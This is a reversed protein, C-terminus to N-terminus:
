CGNDPDYLKEIDFIEGDATGILILLAPLYYKPEAIYPTTTRGGEFFVVCYKTQSRSVLSLPLYPPGISAPRHYALDIVVLRWATKKWKMFERVVACIM